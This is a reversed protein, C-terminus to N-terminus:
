LAPLKVKSPDTEFKPEGNLRGSGTRLRDGSIVMDRANVFGVREEGGDDEGGDTGAKLGLDEALEDADAELEERTKGVLRRAQTKTFGKDLAIELRAITLEDEPLSKGANKELERIKKAQDTIKVDKETDKSGSSEIKEELDTKEETLTDVQTRLDGNKDQLADREKTLNYVLRAAKEEDVEGQKWPWTWDAFKDPLKPM